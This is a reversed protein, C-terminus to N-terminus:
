QVRVPSIKELDQNCGTLFDQKFEQGDLGHITKSSLICMMRVFGALEDESDCKQAASNFTNLAISEGKKLQNKNRVSM